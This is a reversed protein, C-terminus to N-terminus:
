PRVTVSLQITGIENNATMISVLCTKPTIAHLLDQPDVMGTRDVPLRTIMFGQRELWKCTELVSPHEIASTIIHDKRGRNEFAIGKLALNNSESGGSTFIIRRATCNLLQAVSRRAGEIISHAENGERYIGSPNGFHDKLVEAMVEYVEPALPTTANHDLYIRPQKEEADRHHYLADSSYEGSDMKVTGVSDPARVVDCLLAKYVPFGSIPDYRQLDTLENINCEQWAKPGIPGGGGM